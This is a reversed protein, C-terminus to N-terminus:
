SSPATGAQLTREAQERAKITLADITTNNRWADVIAECEARVQERREDSWHTKTHLTGLEEKAEEYRSKQQEHLRRYMKEEVEIFTLAADRQSKAKLLSGLDQITDQM